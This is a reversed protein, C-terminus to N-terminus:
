RGSGRREYPLYRSGTTQQLHDRVASYPRLRVDPLSTEFTGHGPVNLRVHVLGHTAIDNSLAPNSAQFPLRFMVSGGQLQEASFTRVWRGQRVHPVRRSDSFRPVEFLQVDVTGDVAAAQGQAAVPTVEVVLGDPEVDADWNALQARAEVSVVRPELGLAGRAWDAMTNGKAKLGAWEPSGKPPLVTKGARRTRRAMEPEAHAMAAERATQRDYHHGAVTLGAVRNWAVPRRITMSQGEYRLWLHKDDTRPDITAVLTQGNNLVVEAAEVQRDAVRVTALAMCAVIALRRMLDNARRAPPQQAFTHQRTPQDHNTMAPAKGWTRTANTRHTSRFAFRAGAATPVVRWWRKCPVIQEASLVRTM